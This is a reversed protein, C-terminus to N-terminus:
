SPGDGRRSGCSRDCAGGPPNTGRPDVRDLPRNRVYSYLNIGGSYSIPDRTLFRGAAPDYYRHTLLQVGTEIDPHYGFQAKYGVPQVSSGSLISGHAAFM